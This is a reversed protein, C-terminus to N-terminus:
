RREAFLAFLALAGLIAVAVLALTGVLIVLVPIMAVLAQSVAAIWSAQRVADSRLERGVVFYFAIVIAAVFFAGWRSIPGFVVLLGEILAIWFALRVRRDRLWRGARSSGHELAPAQTPGFAM